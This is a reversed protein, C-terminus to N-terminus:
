GEQGGELEGWPRTYMSYFVTDFMAHILEAASVRKKEENLGLDFRAIGEYRIKYGHLRHLFRVAVMIRLNEQETQGERKEWTLISAAVQSATSHTLSRISKAGIFFTQAEVMNVMHAELGRKCFDIEGKLGKCNEPSVDIQVNSLVPAHEVLKDELEGVAKEFYRRTLSAYLAPEAEDDAAALTRFAEPILPASHEFLDRGTVVKFILATTAYWDQLRLIRAVGGLHKQIVAHPFLHSPTAYKPDGVRLPPDITVGEGTALSVATETDIVGIKFAGPHTLSSPSHEPTGSIFISDPNIDRMAISRESLDVLLGLLHTVMSRIMAQNKVSNKEFIANHIIKGYAFITEGHDEVTEEEMSKSSVHIDHLVQSLFYDRSIDMFFAFSDRIMLHKEDTRDVSLREMHAMEIEPASLSTDRNPVLLNMIPTVTPVGWALPSLREALSHGDMLAQRYLAYDTLPKPPIKVMLYRDYIVFWIFRCAVKAEGLPGITLRRTHWQGDVMVGLQYIRGWVSLPRDLAEFRTPADPLAGLQARYIELFHAVVDEELYRDSPDRVGHDGTSVAEERRACDSFVFWLPPAMLTGVFFLAMAEETVPADSYIVVIFFTLAEAIARSWFSMMHGFANIRGPFLSLAILFLLFFPLMRKFIKM